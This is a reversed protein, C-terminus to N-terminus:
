GSSGPQTAKVVQLLPVVLGGATPHSEARSIRNKAKGAKSAGVCPIGAILVDVVPLTEPPVEQFPAEYLTTGEDWVPNNMAAADITAPDMEVAFAMRSRVGATRLGSHIAHDLIGGGHALSGTVVADGERVRTRLRDLRERAAKDDPHVDVEIRGRYISVQAREIGAGLANELAEGAIDIIPMTRSHRERRSVVRDGEAGFTLTVKNRAPDWSVKYREGPKIGARVLKMGEVWLRKVGRHLGIKQM